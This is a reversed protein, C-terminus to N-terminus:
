RPFTDILEDSQYFMTGLEGFSYPMDGLTITSGGTSPNANPQSAGFGVNFLTVLVDPRNSVDYGATQWQATIEKLYLATYLYAYYHNKSDTLRNFLQTDHNTGSPYAVLAAMGDGPYFPSSSDNAYAEILAATDQKIGSIGLSFKTMSSLIKLPEFYKKFSERNSTFFRLQEPVVAAVIMRSPVGTEASVKEVTAADKALGNSLTQWELTKQWVCQKPSTGTSDPLCISGKQETKSATSTKKVAGLSANRATSAGRVNFLGIQMGVFVTTFVLGILAFILIVIGGIIRINKNQLLRKM